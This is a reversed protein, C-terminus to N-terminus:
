QGIMFYVSYGGPDQFGYATGLILTLETHYALLTSLRLEGGVGWLLDESAFDDFAGAGNVFVDLYLDKLFLPFTQLGRRIRWLPMFYDVALYHYQSGRQASPPYGRLFTGTIGTAQLISNFIDQEPYGGVSFKRMFRDDGGAIGGKYQVRLVHHDAYWLPTYRTIRWKLHYETWDSGLIPSSLKAELGLRFGKETVVSYTYTDTNDFACKLYATGLNGSAPFYPEISGPDHEWPENIRGDFHEFAYGFGVSFQYDPTSFPLALALSGFYDIETYDKLQDAVRAFLTNRYMGLYIAITPYWFDLNLSLVMNGNLTETNLRMSAAYSVLQAPDSGSTDAGIVSLNFTDAMYSPVWGHPRIHKLPNYRSPSLGTSASLDVPGPRGLSKHNPSATTTAPACEGQGLLVEQLYYGDSHASAFVVREGDPHVTPCFAGGIVNTLQRTCGGGLETAYLNFVGSVSSAYVLSHGDPTWTPQLEVAGGAAVLEIAGSELDAVVLDVDGNGQRVFALRNGDPSWAPWSLGGDWVLVVSEDGGVMPRIILSSVGLHTRVYAARTGDASIAPDKVRAGDTLRTRKERRPDFHMLEQYYYFTRHYQHASYYIEGDVTQQPRDCGGRCSVIERIQGQDDIARLHKVAHGSAHVFLLTGDPTFSPMPLAEGGFTLRRGEREGAARIGDVQAGFRNRLDDQWQDYLEVFTAGFIRRASINLSFPNIKGAQEDVFQFLKARGFQESIWHIFYSGYLYPTSGRPLKLPSGTMEDITFLNDEAVALRMHTDFKPSGIRGGSDISSEVLVALGELFWNPLNANPLFTKGLVYNVGKLLGTVREMQFMHTLEHYVLIRKWDSWFGLEGAPDPVYAYLVISNYPLIYTLGNASDMSDVLVLQGKESPEFGFAEKLRGYAEEAIALFERALSEEGQYYHISFHDSTLSRWRLKPDSGAASTAPVLLLLAMCAAALM